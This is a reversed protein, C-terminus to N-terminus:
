IDLVKTHVYSMEFGSLSPSPLSGPRPRRTRQACRTWGGFKQHVAACAGSRTLLSTGPPDDLLDLRPYTSPSASLTRPLKVLLSALLPSGTILLCGGLESLTLAVILCMCLISKRILQHAVSAGKVVMSLKHGNLELTIVISQVYCM